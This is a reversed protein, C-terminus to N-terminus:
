EWPMNFWDVYERIAEEAISYRAGRASTRAYEVGADKFMKRLLPLLMEAAEDSDMEAAHILQYAATGETLDGAHKELTVVVAYQLMAALTIALRHTRGEPVLRRLMDMWVSYIHEGVLQELQNTNSKKKM